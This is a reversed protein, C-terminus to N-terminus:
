WADMCKGFSYVAVGLGVWGLYRKGIVKLLQTAGQITTLQATNSIISHIATIGLAASICSLVRDADFENMSTRYKSFDKTKAYLFSMVLAFEALHQEDLSRVVEKEDSSFGLAKENNELHKLIVKQLVRGNKVLPDLVEIMKHKGDPQSMTKANLKEQIEIVRTAILSVKEISLVQDALNLPRDVRPDDKSCSVCSIGIIVCFILLSPEKMKKKKQINFLKNLLGM